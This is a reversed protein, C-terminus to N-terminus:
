RRGSGDDVEGSDDPGTPLVLNPDEIILYDHDNHVAVFSADHDTIYMCFPASEELLEELRQGDICLADFRGPSSEGVLVVHLTTVM